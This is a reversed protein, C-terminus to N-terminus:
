KTHKKKIKTKNKIKVRQKNDFPTFEDGMGMVKECSM